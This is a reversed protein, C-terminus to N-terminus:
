NLVISEPTEYENFPIGKLSTWIMNRIMANPVTFATWVIPLFILHNWARLTEKYLKRHIMKGDSDHVILETEFESKFTTPILGLSIGTFFGATYVKTNNYTETMNLEVAYKAMKRDDPDLSYNSFMNSGDLIEVLELNLKNTYVKSYAPESVKGIAYEYYNVDIYVLNTDVPSEYTVPDTKQLLNGKVTLCSPLSFVVTLLIFIRLFGIKLTKM